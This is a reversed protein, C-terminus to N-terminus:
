HRNEMLETRMKQNEVQLFSNRKSLDAIQDVLEKMKEERIIDKLNFETMLGRHFELMETFKNGLTEQFLTLYSIPVTEEHHRSSELQSMDESKKNPLNEDEHNYESYRSNQPSEIRSKSKRNLIPPIGDLLSNSTELLPEHRSRGSSGSRFEQSKYISKDEIDAITISKSPIDTIDLKEAENLNTIVFRGRKSVRAM